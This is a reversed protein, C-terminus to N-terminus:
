YEKRNNVKKLIIFTGAAAIVIVGAIVIWTWNTSKKEEDFPNPQNIEEEKILPDSVPETEIVPPETESPAETEEQTEIPPEETAVLTHKLEVTESLDEEEGTITFSLENYFAEYGEPVNVEKITYVGPMLRLSM